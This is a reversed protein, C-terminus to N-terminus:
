LKASPKEAKCEPDKFNKGREKFYEKGRERGGTGFEDESALTSKM